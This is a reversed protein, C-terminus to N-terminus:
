ATAFAVAHRLCLLVFLFSPLARQIMLEVKLIRIRLQGSNRKPQRIVDALSCFLHM